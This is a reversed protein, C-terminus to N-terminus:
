SVIDKREFHRFSLALLVVAYSVSVACGKLMGDWRLESQLADVWTFQWHTPLINRWAGLATVADVINSVVVLGVAGGVAGLPADTVTSLYFALAAVVLQSIIAYVVVIAMRGLAQGPDLTPGTPIKLPGWGFAISGALLSMAPLLILAGASYTLAVALKVRLLRARPVPAALLYRLSSWGAESAVTDGCFLAVAVVLLFGTSVLLAFATLNLASSTAVDSFAPVAGPKPNGGIKFAAVLVWPLLALLGLMVLTRRRRLQRIFETRFPLTHRPRYGHARDAHTRGNQDDRSGATVASSSM